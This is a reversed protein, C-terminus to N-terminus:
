RTLGHVIGAHRSTTRSYREATYTWAQDAPRGPSRWAIPTGYSRIVYEAGRVEAAEAPNDLRGTDLPAGPTHPAGSITGSGARFAEGGTILKAARERNARVTAGHALAGVNTATM